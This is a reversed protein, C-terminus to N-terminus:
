LNNIANNAYKLLLRLLTKQDRALDPSYTSANRATITKHRSPKKATTTTTESAANWDTNFTKNLNKIIEPEHTIVSLERNTDLSQRTFNISGIVATADDIIMVKAHIVLRKSYRVTVNNKALYDFKKGGVKQNPYHSMLINVKVGHRAAQALAGVIAYDSLGEAYISLSQKANNILSLLKERRNDPSWILDATHVTVPKHTWDATFVRHIEAVDEPNDLQLAFNRENKFASHTLNFTMITASQQDLILTKQHLLTFNDGPWALPINAAQLRAITVANENTTQYPYHQLLVQVQKHQHQAEILATVFTEDTFGYIALEISSKAGLIMGLLPDRGMEPETILRQAAFCPLTILALSIILLAQVLTHRM